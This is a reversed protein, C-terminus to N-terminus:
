VIGTSATGSRMPPIVLPSNQRMTNTSTSVKKNERATPM